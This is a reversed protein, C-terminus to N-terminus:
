KIAKIKKKLIKMKEEKRVDQHHGTQLVRMAMYGLNPIKYHALINNIPRCLPFISM